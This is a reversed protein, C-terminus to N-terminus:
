TALSVFAKYFIILTRGARAADTSALLAPGRPDDRGGRARARAARFGARWLQTARAGSALKELTISM